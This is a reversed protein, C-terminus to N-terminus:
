YYDSEDQPYCRCPWRATEPIPALKAHEGLIRALHGRDTEWLFAVAARSEESHEIWEPLPLDSPQHSFGRERAAHVVKQMESCAIGKACIRKAAVDRNLPDPAALAEAAAAPDESQLHALADAADDFLAADYWRVYLEPEREFGRAEAALIVARAQGDTLTPTMDVVTASVAENPRPHRRNNSNGAHDTARTASERPEAM